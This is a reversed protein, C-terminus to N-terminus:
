SQFIVRQHLSKLQKIVVDWSPDSFHYVHGNREVTINPYQVEFDGKTALKVDFGDLMLEAIFEKAKEYQDHTPTM